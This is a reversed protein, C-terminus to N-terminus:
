GVSVPLRRETEAEIFQNREYYLRILADALKKSDHRYRNEECIVDARLVRAGDLESSDVQVIESHWEEPLTGETNSNALVFDFLHAGHMHNALANFHDSVKFSDTEGHQTAVNCAYVKLAPSVEVARRIGEVLLNPMVSTMLSGPGCIIMDAQLIARIADPNAQIAPPDLFIEKVNGHDTIASEGRIVEGDHTRACITLASLTAPLIQGRVALVRSTERVAEEFNGAVETM